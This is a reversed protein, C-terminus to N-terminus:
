HSGRASAAKIVAAETMPAMSAQIPAGDADFGTIEPDPDADTADRARLAVDITIQDEICRRLVDWGYANAGGELAARADGNPDIGLADCLQRATKGKAAAKFADYAPNSAVQRREPAAQVNEPERWPHAEGNPIDDVETEDLMGLGCIALTVRRKAKTVAKMRANARAEGKLDGIAVAGIDSDARGDLVAEVQVVYIGDGDLRESVIRTSVGRVNRLQDTADKRAYLILKGNLTLYEFPRTLPNLGVSECVAKYYAVREGPSLQALDGKAIVAELVAGADPRTGNTALANTM